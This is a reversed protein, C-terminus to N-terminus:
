YGMYYEIIFILLLECFAVSVCLVLVFRKDEKELLEMGEKLEMMVQLEQLEESDRLEKCVRISSTTTTTTTTTPQTKYSTYLLHTNKAYIKQCVYFM